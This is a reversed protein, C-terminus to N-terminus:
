GPQQGQQAAAVQKLQEAMAGPLVLPLQSRVPLPEVGRVVVTGGMVDYLVDVLEDHTAPPGAAVGRLMWRPGDVGVFRLTAQQTVVHMERGWPGDFIEDVRAGDERLKQGIETRIESWLPASRPAAFATITLQGLEILVHVAGVVGSKDMEVQLQAGDPLPVRISGLDLRAVDDDPADAEDFPGDAPEDHQERVQEVAVALEDVRRGGRGKRHRGRGFV